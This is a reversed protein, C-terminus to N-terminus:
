SAPARALAGLGLVRAVSRALMLEEDTPIVRLAVRSAAPSIRAAHRANAGADLEIGLFGLDSCIRERIAASNEGIGGTFVLTDLGGLAAAFAGIWKRAQYCFLAIAEAARADAAELALLERLDSSLESVGLLGSQQTVLAFFQEAGMSESRALHAALGPDLDGSRRSMVLGSAPTLAMSTDVCRGDRVAALSAGNGLHALIVRGRAAAPDGARALEQMLYEYSLGHFGYRRIGQAEYRRPIPLMRAVRPLDRHFATDFCAVQPLGPWQRALAEILELAPPLHEPALPRLAALERLLDADVRAPAAREPGGHVIRHGVGVLGAAAGERELRRVLHALCGAHTMGAALTERSAGPELRLECRADPLGIAAYSGAASRELGAAVRFLSFKLSSSGANVSLISREVRSV